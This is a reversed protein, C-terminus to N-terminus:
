QERLYISDPGVQHQAFAESLRGQRNTWLVNHQTRNPLAFPRNRPGERKPLTSLGQPRTIDGNSNRHPELKSRRLAVFNWSGEVTTSREARRNTSTVTGRLAAAAMNMVNCETQLTGAGWRRFNSYRVGLAAAYFM